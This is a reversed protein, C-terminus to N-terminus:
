RDSTCTVIPMENGGKRQGCIIFLNSNSIVSFGILIKRVVGKSLFRLVIDLKCGIQRYFCTKRINTGKAM